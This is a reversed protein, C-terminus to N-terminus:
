IGLGMILRILYSIVQDAFFLFVSSVFVMVFVAIMSVITERRTPWSVKKAESKVQRFFEGVGAKAM